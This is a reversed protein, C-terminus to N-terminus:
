RNDNVERFRKLVKEVNGPIRLQIGQRVVLGDVKLGNVYAIVWWYSSDGYFQQSLTDYRDTGTTVVYIDDESPPIEPYITTGLYRKGEETRGVKIGRYRKYM